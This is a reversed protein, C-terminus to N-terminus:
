KMPLCLTIINLRTISQHCTYAYKISGSFSTQMTKYSDMRIEIFDMIKLANKLKNTKMKTKHVYM